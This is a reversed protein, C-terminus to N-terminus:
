HNLIITSDFYYESGNVKEINYKYKKNSRKLISLIGLGANGREDLKGDRLKNLYIENIEEPSLKEYRVLKDKLFVSDSKSVSNGTVFKMENNCISLEFYPELSHNTSQHKLMNEMLEISVFKAKSVTTRSYGLLELKGEIIKIASAIISKNLAGLIVFVEKFEKSNLLLDNLSNKATKNNIM